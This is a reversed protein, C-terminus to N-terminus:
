RPRWFHDDDFEDEAPYPRGLRAGALADDRSIVRWRLARGRARGHDPGLVLEVDTRGVHVRPALEAGARLQVEDALHVQVEVGHIPPTPSVIVVRLDPTAAPFKVFGNPLLQSPSVLSVESVFADDWGFGALANEFDGTALAFHWEGNEDSM